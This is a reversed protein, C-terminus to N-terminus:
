ARRGVVARGPALWRVLRWSPVARLVWFFMEMPRSYWAGPPAVLVTDVYMCIAAHDDEVLHGPEAASPFALYERELTIGAAHAFQRCRGRARPAQALMVVPTGPPLGAVDSLLRRRSPASRELGVRVAGPPAIIRWNERWRQAAITV